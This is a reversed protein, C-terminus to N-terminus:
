MSINAYNKLASRVIMGIFAASFGILVAHWHKMM